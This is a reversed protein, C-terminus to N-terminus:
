KIIVKQFLPLTINEYIIKEYNEISNTDINPFVCNCKRCKRLFYQKNIKLFFNILIM